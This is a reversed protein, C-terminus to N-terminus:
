TNTSNASLFALDLASILFNLICINFSLPSTNTFSLLKQTRAKPLTAVPCPSFPKATTYFLNFSNVVCAGGPWNSRRLWPRLLPFCSFSFLYQRIFQLVDATSFFRLFAFCYKICFKGIPFPLM